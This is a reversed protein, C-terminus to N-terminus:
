QNATSYLTKLWATDVSSEFSIEEMPVPPMFSLRFKAKGLAMQDVPNDEAAWTCQGGVLGGKQVLTQLYSNVTERVADLKAANLPQDVYRLAAREVAETLIDAVARVCIFTIPDTSAPFGASRNGWALFGTGYGRVATVIGAANLQNAECLEDGATWTIPRELAEVGKLEHNSPSVWFGETLDVFSALGALNQSFPHLAGGIKLHPYTFVARVNGTNLNVPGAVGRSTIVQPVTTGVPVDIYSHMKVQDALSLMATRVTDQTCFVPVICIRPKLNYLHLVDVAAQLGTRRGAVTTAGVIDAATVKTPDGYSYSVSLNAGAAIQGTSIRTITGTVLDVTYDTGETYTTQGVKVVLTAPILGTHPLTVTGDAGLVAPSNAVTTKHTAPDFVNVVAVCASGYQLIDALAQPITYGTLDPGFTAADKPTYVMTPQNVLATALHVPATGVLLIVATPPTQISGSTKPVENIKAGHLFSM